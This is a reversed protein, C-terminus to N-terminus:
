RPRKSAARKRTTTSSGPTARAHSSRGGATARSRASRMEDILARAAPKPMWRRRVACGIEIDQQLEASALTSFNERFDRSQVYPSAVISVADAVLVARRILPFYDITHVHRKPDKGAAEYLADVVPSLQQIFSTSIFPYEAIAAPTIRAIRTLPHDRRVFVSGTVVDVPEVTLEPWDAFILQPGIAVDVDGRVLLQIIREVSGPTVDLVVSAHRVLFRSVPEVLMWELPPPCVGVRLRGEIKAREESVETFLSEADALVRAARGVFDRGPDTLRVGRSTRHFLAYGLQRELDAVNKTVASQSVHLAIAAKSFSGLRGVETAHRLKTLNM